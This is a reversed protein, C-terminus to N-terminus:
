NIGMSIFIIGHIRYVMAYISYHLFFKLTLLKLCNVVLLHNHTMFVVKQTLSWELLMRM